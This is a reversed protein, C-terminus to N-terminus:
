QSCAVKLSIKRAETGVDKPYSDLISQIQDGLFQAGLTAAGITDKGKWSGSCLTNFARVIWDASGPDLLLMGVQNGGVVGGLLAAVKMAVIAGWSHGVLLVTSGAHDKAVTETIFRVASLAQAQNSYIEDGSKFFEHASAVRANQGVGPPDLAYFTQVRKRVDSDAIFDSFTPAAPSIWGPMLVAVLCDDEPPCAGAVPTAVLVSAKEGGLREMGPDILGDLVDIDRELLATSSVDTHHALDHLAPSLVLLLLM